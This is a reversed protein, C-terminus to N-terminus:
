ETAAQVQYERGAEDRCQGIATINPHFAFGDIAYRVGCDLRKGSPSRLHALAVGTDATEREEAAARDSWWGFPSIRAPSRVSSFSGQYEEGRLLITIPGSLYRGDVTAAGMEGTMRDTITLSMPTACSALLATSALVAAQSRNM